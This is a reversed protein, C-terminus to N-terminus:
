RPDISRTVPEAGLDAFPGPWRDGAVPHGFFDTDIGKYVPTRKVDGKVSLTLELKDADMVATIAAMAGNMDWGHEERWSELNHWEPPEPFKVRLYPAGGFPSTSAPYVNGDADNRANTFEIASRGIKFFVNDHVQLDHVDNTHGGVPRPGNIGSVTDVCVEACDLFLNYAVIVHNTDRILIGGTLHDFINNDIENLANSGEIHIAHPNVDGPIDAFVNGTLRDNANGIYLWIGNAHRINRVVNNRFLLNRTNHM